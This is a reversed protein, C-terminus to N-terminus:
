GIQLLKVQFTLMEVLSHQESPFELLSEPCTEITDELESCTSPVEYSTAEATEAVHEQQIPINVSSVLFINFTEEAGTCPSPAPSDKKLDDTIVVNDQLTTFRVTPVGFMDTTETREQNLPPIPILSHNILTDGTLSDEQAPLGVMSVGSIRRTESKEQYPPTALVLSLQTSAEVTVAMNGQQTPVRFTSARRIKNAGGREECPPPTPIPGSGNFDEVMVTMEGTSDTM